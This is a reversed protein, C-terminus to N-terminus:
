PVRRLMTCSTPTARIPADTHAILFGLPLYAVLGQSENAEMVGFWRAMAFPIRMLHTVACGTPSGRRVSDNVADPDCTQQCATHNSDGMFCLDGFGVACGTCACAGKGLDAL